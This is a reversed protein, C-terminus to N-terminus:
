AHRSGGDHREGAAPAATLWDDGPLHPFGRFNAINAFRAACTAATRDCGVTAEVADGPAFPAPTEPTLQRGGAETADLAVRATAGDSLRRLTGFALRGTALAEIGAVTLRGSPEVATVTGAARRGPASLDVGCRADGLTADCASLYARGTARNLRDADSLAEARFRGDAAEVEGLRGAFLVFRQAPDRWNVRWRTLRAGDYRGAALDAETVADSSLAGLVEVGDAALGLAAEGDGPEGGTQPDFVVGDFSLPVDHDTCGLRAGDAREILWCDCLTTVGGDLHAQLAPDIETM